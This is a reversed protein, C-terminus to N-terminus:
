KDRVQLLTFLALHGFSFIDLKTDYQPMKDFAEPPMYLLSRPMQNLRIRDQLNMIHSSGFDGIKAVLSPALLVNCASLGRHVIPPHRTHLYLLGRAVDAVLSQKLTHTLARDGELLTDLSMAMLEMLLVPVSSAGLFCIGLFQVVHPHRLEMM